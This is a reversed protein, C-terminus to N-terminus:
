LIPKHFSVTQMRQRDRFWLVDFSHLMSALPAFTITTVLSQLLARTLVTILHAGLSESFIELYLLVQLILSSFFIIVMHSHLSDRSLHLRARRILVMVFVYSGLTVPFPIRTFAHTLVAYLLILFVSFKVSHKFAIYFLLGTALQFHYGVGFLSFHFTVDLMTLFIQLITLFILYLM